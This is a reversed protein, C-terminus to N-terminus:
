ISVRPSGSVNAISRCSIHSTATLTTAASAFIRSAQNLTAGSAVPFTLTLRWSQFGIVRHSRHRDQRGRGERHAVKEQRYIPEPLIKRVTTRSSQCGGEVKLADILIKGGARLNDVSAEAHWAIVTEPRVHRAGSALRELREFGGRRVDRRQKRQLAVQRIIVGSLTIAM